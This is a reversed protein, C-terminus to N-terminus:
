RQQPLRDLARALLPMCRRVEDQAARHWAPHPGPENWARLVAEMAPLHDLKRLGAPTTPTHM